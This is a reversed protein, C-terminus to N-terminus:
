GCPCRPLSQSRFLCRRCRAQMHQWRYKCCADSRSSSRVPCETPPLSQFDSRRVSRRMIWDFMFRLVIGFQFRGKKLSTQCHLSHSTHSSPGRTYLPSDSALFSRIVPPNRKPFTFCNSHFVIGGVESREAVEREVLSAKKAFTCNISNNIFGCFTSFKESDIPKPRDNEYIDRSNGM